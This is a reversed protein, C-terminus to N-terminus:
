LWQFSCQVFTFCSGRLYFSDNRINSVHLSPQCRFNSTVRKRKVYINLQSPAIKKYVFFKKYRLFVKKVVM